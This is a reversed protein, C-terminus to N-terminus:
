AASATVRISGDQSETVRAQVRGDRLAAGLKAALGPEGGDIDITLTDAQYGLARVRVSGAMPGLAKSIRAMLPVFRGPTATGGGAGPLRDALTAVPDDGLAVGPLVLAATERMEQERRDAIGKLLLTDAAAIVVHAAVGIAIVTAARRWFRAANGGRRAYDGQRLDLAPAALRQALATADIDVATAAMDVPLPAGHGLVQPRGAAAWASMLMTAPLAFGTGDAVRVLARHGSLDVAWQNEAPVPMALADPVMPAEDLGASDAAACWRDMADRRVVGVLYRKPAVEAGLALHVSEIPEAILDEVAFPLAEIRRARTALPLDVALLRVSETPVLVTAPGDPDAIIPDDGALTWVGTARRVVPEPPGIPIAPDATVNSEHVSRM